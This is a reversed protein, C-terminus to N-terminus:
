LTWIKFNNLKVKDVIESVIMVLTITHGNEILPKTQTNTCLFMM